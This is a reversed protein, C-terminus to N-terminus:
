AAKPHNNRIAVKPAPQPEPLLLLEELEPPEPPEPPDPPDPPEPELELQVLEVSLKEAQVEEVPLM